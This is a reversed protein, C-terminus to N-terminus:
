SVALCKIDCVRIKTDFIKIEPVLRRIEGFSLFSFLDNDPYYGSAINPNPRMSKRLFPLGRMLVFVL